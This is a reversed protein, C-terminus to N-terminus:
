RERLQWTDLHYLYSAEPLLNGIHGTNMVFLDELGAMNSGGQKAASNYAPQNALILLSEVARLDNLEPRPYREGKEWDKWGLFPGMSAFRVTVPDYEDQVWDADHDNLRTELGNEAKGIYLLVDRGYLPHLGSIAYLVHEPHIDRHRRHWKFPGEWHVVFTRFRQDTM